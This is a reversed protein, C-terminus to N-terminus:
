SSCVSLSSDIVAVDYSNGSPEYRWAKGDKVMRAAGEFRRCQTDSRDTENQDRGYFKIRVTASRGSISSPGVEVLNIRPRASQPQDIWRPNAARYRASLLRRANEYQGSNIRQFHRRLVRSPTNLSARRPAPDPNEKGPEDSVAGCRPQLSSVFAVVADRHADFESTPAAGLAAIGGSCGSKFLDIKRDGGYSFEWFWDSEGDKRWGYEEYDAIRQVQRRVPRAGELATGTFSRTYNVKVYVDPSGSLHWRSEKYAGKDVDDSDQIWGDPPVVSYGGAVFRADGATENPDEVPEDANETNHEENADDAEAVSGDLQGPSQRSLPTGGDSEDSGGGSMLVVLLLAIVLCGVGGAALPLVPVHRPGYRSPSPPAPPPQPVSSPAPPQPIPAPVPAREPSPTNPVPSAATM